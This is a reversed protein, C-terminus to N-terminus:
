QFSSPDKWALALYKIEMLNALTFRHWIMTIGYDYTFQNVNFKLRSDQIKFRSGQVKFKSDQIKFRSDLITAGWGEL